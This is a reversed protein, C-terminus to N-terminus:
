AEDLPLVLEAAPSSSIGRAVLTRRLRTLIEKCRRKVTAESMSVRAATEAITLGQEYRLELLLRGEPSLACRAERLARIARAYAEKEVLAEEGFPAGGGRGLAAAMALGVDDCVDGLHRDVDGDGDSFVDTDDRLTAALDLGARRMAEVLSRAAPRVQHACDIMAGFVRRWAYTTFREGLCADYSRAALVLGEYGASRLEGRLGPFRRLALAWALRDVMPIAAEVLKQQRPTLPASSASAGGEAGAEEAGAEDPRGPGDSV